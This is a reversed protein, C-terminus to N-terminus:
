SPLSHEITLIYPQALVRSKGALGSELDPLDPTEKDCPFIKLIMWNFGFGRKGGWQYGQKLYCHAGIQAYVIVIIILLIITM